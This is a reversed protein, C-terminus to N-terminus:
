SIDKFQQHLKFQKSTVYAEMRTLREHLNSFKRACYQFERRRSYKRNKFKERQEEQKSQNKQQNDQNKDQAFAQDDFAKLKPSMLDQKDLVFYAGFYAFWPIPGAIFFSVFTLIRVIGVDIELYDAIGSCVGLFKADGTNRCLKKKYDVNKFHKFVTTNTIQDKFEGSNNDMLFYCIFYAPIFFWAGMLVSVVFVIRVVWNAVGLYDAIGSCVGLFKKDNRNIHFKKKSKM